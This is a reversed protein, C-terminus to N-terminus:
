VRGSQYIVCQTWIYVEGDITIERTTCVNTSVSKWTTGKSGSALERPAAVAATSALLMSACLLAKTIKM